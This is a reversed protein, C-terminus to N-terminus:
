RAYALIPIRLSEGDPAVVFVATDLLGPPGDASVRVRLAAEWSPESTAVSATGLGPDRAAPQLARQSVSGISASVRPSDCRIHSHELLERSDSCVLVTAGESDGPVVVSVDSSASLRGRVVARVPVVTGRLLNGLRMLDANPVNSSGGFLDSALTLTGSLEGIQKGPVATISYACEGSGASPSIRRLADESKVLIWPSNSILRVRGALGAARADVAMSLVMTKQEGLRLGGFDLECPRIAVAAVSNASVELSGLTIAHEGTGQLIVAETKLGAAYGVSMRVQVSVEAGPRVVVPLAGDETEVVASTCGCSTVLGAIVVASASQNRLVFLHELSSVEPLFVTGFDYKASLGPVAPDLRVAGTGPVPFTTGQRDQCPASRPAVASLLVACVIPATRTLWAQCGATM